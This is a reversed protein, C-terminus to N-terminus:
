ISEKYWAITHGSIHQIQNSVFATCTICTICTAQMRSHGEKDAGTVDMIYCQAQESKKGAKGKM